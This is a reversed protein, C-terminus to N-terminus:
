GDVAVPAPGLAEEVALRVRDAEAEGVRAVYQEVVEIDQGPQPFITEFEQPTAQFICLSANDAGDIIQINKM